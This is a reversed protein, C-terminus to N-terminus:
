KGSTALIHFRIQVENAVTGFDAWSGEGIAFDARKIVFTGDFSAENGRVSVKAPATIAQTRGKISLHGSVEYRDDGVSKISSSEFHAIPFAKTNFWLKGAVEDDGESSGTDISAIDVDLSAKASAIRAPDFRLQATFRKFRGESGVGMQKFAFVLTSKDVLIQNFEVACAYAPLALAPLALLILPTRNSM